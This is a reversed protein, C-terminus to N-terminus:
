DLKGTVLKVQHWHSTKFCNQLNCLMSHRCTADHRPCFSFEQFLLWSESVITSGTSDPLMSAVVVALKFRNCHINDGALLGPITM